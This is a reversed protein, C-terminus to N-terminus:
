IRRAMWASTLHGGISEFGSQQQWGDKDGITYNAQLLQGTDGLAFVGVTPPTSNFNVLHPASWVAVGLDTWDADWALAVLARHKLKGDSGLAVVELRDDASAVVSPVSAWNGHLNELETYGSTNTWTFHYMTHDVGIGFFDVRDDSPAILVPDGIFSGGRSKWDLWSGTVTSYQRHLVSSTDVDYLVLDHQYENNRCAVAPTSNTSRSPEQTSTRDWTRGFAWFNHIAVQTSRDNSMTWIDARDGQYTVRCASIGSAAQEGLASWGSWKGDQYTKLAVERDMNVGFVDVRQSANWSISAPQSLFQGGLNVWTANGGDRIPIHWLSGDEGRAHLYTEETMNGKMKVSSLIQPCITGNCLGPTTSDSANTPLSSSSNRNKSKLGFVVGLSVSVALVVALLAIMVTSKRWYWRKERPPSGYQHQRPAIGKSCEFPLDNSSVESHATSHDSRQDSHASVPITAHPTNDLAGHHTHFIQRVVKPHPDWSVLVKATDQDIPQDLQPHGSALHADPRETTDM